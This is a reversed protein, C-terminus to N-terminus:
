KAFEVAASFKQAAAKPTAMKHVAKFKKNANLKKAAVEELPALFEATMEAGSLYLSAQGDERVLNGLPMGEYQGSAIIFAFAYYDTMFADGTTLQGQFAKVSASKNDAGMTFTYADYTGGVPNFDGYSELYSYASWGYHLSGYNPDEEANPVLAFGNELQLKNGSIAAVAPMSYQDAGDDLGLIYVYGEGFDASADYIAIVRELPQDVFESVLYGSFPDVGVSVTKPSTVNWYGYWSAPDFNSKPTEFKVYTLDPSTLNGNADIGFAWLIYKTNPDLKKTEYEVAANDLLDAWAALGAEVAESLYAHYDEMYAKSTAFENLSAETALNWYFTRGEQKPAIKLLASFETINSVSLEFEGAGLVNNDGPTPGDQGGNPTCSALALGVMALLTFLKKM